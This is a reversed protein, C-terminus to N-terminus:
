NKLGSIEDLCIREWTAVAQRFDDLKAKGSLVLDQVREVEIDANIIEQTSFFGKPWIAAIRQFATDFEAAMIQVLSERRAEPTGQKYPNLWIANPTSNAKPTHAIRETFPKNDVVLPPPPKKQAQAMAKYKELLNM